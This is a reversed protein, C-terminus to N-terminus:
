LRTLRGFLGQPRLLVVLFVVFLAPIPRLAPSILYATITELYGVLYAAVFSGLVSGMGGLVVIAFASATLDAANHTGIGLFSALLVGAIGALLGYIFWVFIHIRKIDFGLLALGHPNVSAALLAKGIRTHQIFLWLATIIIWCIIVIIIENSPIRVGILDTVGSLMPRMSVPNDSFIFSLGDEIIIGFLLTGTLIFIENEEPPILRSRQIPRAVCLYTVYAM